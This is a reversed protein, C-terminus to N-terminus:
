WELAVLRQGRQRVGLRDSSSLALLRLAQLPEEGFGTPVLLLDVFTAQLEQEFVRRGSRVSIANQDYVLVPVALPALVGGV